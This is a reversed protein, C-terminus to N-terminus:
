LKPKRSKQKEGNRTQKTKALTKKATGDESKDEAPEVLQTAEAAPEEDGELRILHPYINVGFKSLAASAKGKLDEAVHYFCPILILTIVTAFLLGYGFAMALPSTLYNKNGTIAYISPVLGLVTTTTTLIIPRLRLSTAEALAEILNPSQKRRNNIFDVLTVTNSVIVGALAFLALFSVFGLPESHALQALIVGILSFPIAIMVIFPLILSKFFIALIIFMVVMAAVFYRGLQGMSKTTEEQEGGYSVLCSPYREEVDKFYKALDANVKVSTTVNTDVSAKVQIIRRYNLRNIQSYGPLTERTTVMSLPILGQQNNSIMVNNVDQIKNRDEEKFRVRIDIEDEGEHVTTAVSGEFSANITTAVSMTSVMARGAMLENIKYRFETKGEEFDNKINYVGPVDKLYAVYEEAVQNMAAFDTGRIEITVPDGVPPGMASVKIEIKMDQTILGDAQAAAVKEKIEQEVENAVRKRDKEDTLYVFMTSKHTGDGPKPDLGFPVETGVRTYIGKYEDERICSAVVQELKRMEALNVNLNRSNPLYTYLDIQKEGGPPIFVFGVIPLLSLSLFFLAILICVTLYRHRLARTVLRRYWQQLRHFWGSQEGAGSTKKAEGSVRPLVSFVDEKAASHRRKSLNAFFIKIRVFIGSKEKDESHKDSLFMNLITPMFFIAIAYSAGLCILVVMPIYKLFKGMIGTLLMIPMFTTCICLFTTTVPWVLEASGKLIAEKKPFGEEMYRYANESIVIGFDVIMGLVMIMGFLSMVNITVDTLNMGIFAVMFVLPITSTVIGAMRTSLMLFMVVALLIFGTIANDIITRIADKTYDSTINFISIEVDGDAPNKFKDLNALITDTLTIEDASRKKKVQFVMARKRDYRELVKPEEVTNKVSAVDRVRIAYGADNSRIVTDLIEKENNYQGKTRLVYEDAGIKLTGGPLDINRVKITNIVDNIGLRYRQLKQVDVEVLFERDYYGNKAVEAVGDFEYVFKEFAQAAKRITTFPIAEDKATIAAFFMDTKDVKIEQVIPAEANAPLDEVLDVADKIDQIIQSKNEAAEDLYIAMVSVHEINYSRVKDIGDVEILKKEIPISILNEIEDPSGGPYITKISVMDFNVQPVAERNLGALSMMGFLVMLALLLSVILKEEILYRIITIM